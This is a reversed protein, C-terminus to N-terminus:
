LNKTIDKFEEQSKRPLFKKNKRFWLDLKTKTSNDKLSAHVSYARSQLILDKYAPRVIVPVANSYTQEVLKFDEQDAVPIAKDGYTSVFKHLAKDYISGNCTVDAIYQCDQYENNSLLEFILDSQTDEWMRSTQWHLDFGRIMRRDRDIEIDVPPINYGYKLSKDTDIYLGNVFVEGAFKKDLLIDGCSTSLQEGLTEQLQLIRKRITDIEQETVNEIAITLNNDPVRTFLYKDVFFTLIKAGYRRSNVFKPEWVEKRGFNYIRIPHGTRLSVLTALKYGEGFQGITDKDESKSTEGLLLTKPELISSKNGISLLKTDQNYDFFMKNDPVSKEQDLANQFFERVADYITWSKVYNTALSLEYKRM